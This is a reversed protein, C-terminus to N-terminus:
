DDKTVTGREIYKIKATDVENVGSIETPMDCDTWHHQILNIMRAAEIAAYHDFVGATTLNIEIVIKMTGRWRAATVTGFGRGL